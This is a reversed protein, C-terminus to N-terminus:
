DILSYLEDMLVKSQEDVDYRERRFRQIFGDIAPAKM